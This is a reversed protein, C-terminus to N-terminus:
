IREPAPIGMLDLGQRLAHGVAATLAVRQAALRPDDVRDFVSHANFFRSFSRALDYSRQAVRSPNLQAAALRIEGPWLTLHTLLEVEEAEGLLDFDTVVAPDLGSKRVLSGIRARAYQLYPGTNGALDISEEPDYLMDLRPTVKLIYYRVAGLALDHAIAARAKEELDLRKRSEEMVRRCAGELEDLLDDADVVTGERSKMKGSPLNVMGYSYHTLRGAWDHGLRALVHFLVRFHHEQESGVVYIMEDFGLERHRTVANGLDQTMYISTGDSRLLVKPELGLEDLPCLVAGGADRQLIGRALGEEVEAKGLLWTDSEFYIRDFAIGLRRYTEEYGALVWDNMRRWLALVAPDGAEWARLMAGAEAQLASQAEFARKEEDTARGTLGRASRWAAEEEALRQAYMVYFRGVLHDGKLGSAEPTEGGGWKRWALMSKCIHIGRDNILNIRVVDHGVAGLLRSLADGLINNRVHGLHQPKNTNPCSFELVIRRREAPPLHLPPAGKLWAGLVSGFWEPRALRLNLYPGAAQASQIGAAGALAEALAAAIQLPARRCAKALPFCAFAMDGLAPDPPPGLQIDGPPLEVQFLDRILGSLRAALAEIM